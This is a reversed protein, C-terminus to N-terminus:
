SMLINIIHHVQNNRIQWGKKSENNNPTVLRVSNSINSKKLVQGRQLSCCKLLDNWRTRSRSCRFHDDMGDNQKVFQSLVDVKTGWLCFRVCQIILSRSGSIYAYAFNRENTLSGTGNCSGMVRLKESRFPLPWVSQQPLYWCLGHLDCDILALVVSKLFSENPRYRSVNSWKFHWRDAFKFCYHAWDSSSFEKRSKSLM